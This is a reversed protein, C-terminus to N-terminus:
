LGNDHNFRIEFKTRLDTENPDTLRQRYSKLHDILAVPLRGPNILLIEDQLKFVFDGRRVGIGTATMSAHYLGCRTGFYLKDLANKKIEKPWKDIERFVFLLGSEFYQKSRDPKTYGDRYKAIMEFYSFCVHLTAFDSHPISEFQRGTQANTEGNAMTNAINLQWGYFREYFIEIKNELTWPQPFSENTHKWTIAYV